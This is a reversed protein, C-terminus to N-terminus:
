LANRLCVVYTFEYNLSITGGVNSPVLWSRLGYWPSDIAATDLWERQPSYGTLTNSRFLSSALCPQLVRQHSTQPFLATIKASSRTEVLDYSNTSVDDYDVATLLRGLNGTGQTSTNYVEFNCIVAYLGCQDFEGIISSVTSNDNLHFAFNTELASTSATSLTGSVKFQIWYIQNSINKPCVLPLHSTLPKMTYDRPDISTEYSSLSMSSKAM